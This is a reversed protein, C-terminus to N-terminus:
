LYQFLCNHTFFYIYVLMIFYNTTSFSSDHLYSLFIKSGHFCTTSTEFINIILNILWFIKNYINFYSITPSFMYTFWCLRNVYIFFNIYINFYSIPTFIKQHNIIRQFLCSILMCSFYSIKFVNLYLIDLM